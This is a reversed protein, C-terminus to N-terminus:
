REEEEKGSQRGNERHNGEREERDKSNEHGMPARLSQIKIGVM